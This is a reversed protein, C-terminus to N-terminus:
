STTNNEHELNEIQKLIFDKNLYIKAELITGPFNQTGIKIYKQDPLKQIDEEKNLSIQRFSKKKFNHEFTQKEM